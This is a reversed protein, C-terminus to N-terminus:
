ADGCLQETTVDPPPVNRESFGFPKVIRLWEGSEKLRRLGTNFAAVFDTAGRPFTFAGIGPTSGLLFPESKALGSGPNQELLWAATTDLTAAGYVRGDRVARFVSDQDGLTVIQEEPVGAEVAYGLEVGGTLVAILVDKGPIDQFRTIGKPNGEPVLFASEVQYDPIPFAADACRSPNIFMGAAVFAYRGAKLGPILQRFDALVGELKTIGYDRLVARAVEPAEGTLRGTEDLFGYPAENAFGVKITGTRQAAQFSTSAEDPGCGALTVVGTAAAGRLLTRRTLARPGNGTSM